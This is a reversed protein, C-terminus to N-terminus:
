CHPKLFSQIAVPPHNVITDAIMIAFESSNKPKFKNEVKEPKPPAESERRPPPARKPANETPRKPAPPTDEPKKPPPRSPM